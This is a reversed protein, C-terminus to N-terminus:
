KLLGNHRLDTVIATAVEKPEVNSKEAQNIIYDIELLIGSGFGNATYFHINKRKKFLSEIEKTKKGTMEACISLVKNKYNNKSM